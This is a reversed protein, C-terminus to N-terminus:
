RRDVAWPALKSALYERFGLARDGLKRWLSRPPRPPMLQALVFGQELMAKMNRALFQPHVVMAGVTPRENM